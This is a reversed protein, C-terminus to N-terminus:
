LRCKQIVTQISNSNDKLVNPGPKEQKRRKAKATPHEQGNVAVPGPGTKISM